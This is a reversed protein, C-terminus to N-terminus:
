WLGVQNNREWSACESGTFTNATALITRFSTYICRHQASALGAKKYADSVPSFYGGMVEFDSNFKAFDAGLEFMRLHLYTIPSFSGCAILVLPIKNGDM